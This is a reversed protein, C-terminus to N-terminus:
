ILNDLNLLVTRTQDCSGSTTYKNINFLQITSTNTKINKFYSM